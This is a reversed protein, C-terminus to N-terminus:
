LPGHLRSSWQSDPIADCARQSKTLRLSVAGGCLRSARVAQNSPSRSQYRTMGVSPTSMYVQVRGLELPHPPALRKVTIRAISSSPSPVALPVGCAPAIKEAIASWLMAQPAAPSGEFWFWLEHGVRPAGVTVPSPWFM